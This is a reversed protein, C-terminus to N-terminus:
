GAFWAVLLQVITGVFQLASRAWHSYECAALATTVKMPSHARASDITIARGQTANRSSHGRADGVRDRLRDRVVDGGAGNLNQCLPGRASLSRHPPPPPCRRTLTRTFMSFM